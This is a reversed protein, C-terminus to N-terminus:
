VVSKRDTIVDGKQVHVEHQGNVNLDFTYSRTRDAALATQATLLLALLLFGAIFRKM